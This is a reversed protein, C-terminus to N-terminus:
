YVKYIGQLGSSLVKKEYAYDEFSKRLISIIEKKM